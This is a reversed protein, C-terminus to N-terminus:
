LPEFVLARARTKEIIRRELGAPELRAFINITGDAAQADLVGM